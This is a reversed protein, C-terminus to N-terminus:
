SCLARPAVLGQAFTARLDLSGASRTEDTANRGAVRIEKYRSKLRKPRVPYARQM